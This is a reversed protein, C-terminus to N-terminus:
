VPPFQLFVLSAVIDTSANSHQRKKNRFRSIVDAACARLVCLKRSWFNFQRDARYVNCAKCKLDKKTAFSRIAKSLWNM